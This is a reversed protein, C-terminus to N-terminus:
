NYSAPYIKEILAYIWLSLFLIGVIIATREYYMKKDGSKVSPYILLFVIVIPGMAFGFPIFYWVKLGRYDALNLCAYLTILSALFDICIDAHVGVVSILTYTIMFYSIGWAIVDLLLTGAIVAVILNLLRM